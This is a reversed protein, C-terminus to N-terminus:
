KIYKGVERIGEKEMEWIGKCNQYEIYTNDLTEKKKAKVIM